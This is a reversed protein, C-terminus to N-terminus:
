REGAKQMTRLRRRLIKPSRHFMELFLHAHMGAILLNDSLYRFHSKGGEPYRVRTDHQVLEIGDWLLRVVIEIDFDMRRGVRGGRVVRVTRGLPYVRFGCMTDPPPWSLTELAVWFHTIYRSMRRLCPVSEDYVPRALVLADPEARALELLRPADRGDHQGDADIQLAHTYGREFALQLGCTVAAGKGQNRELRRLTMNPDGSALRSLLDASHADSGDDIIFYHARCSRLAEVTTAMTEGHNYVPIVICPAFKM